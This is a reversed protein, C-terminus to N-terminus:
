VYKLAFYKKNVKVECKRRLIEKSCVCCKVKVAPYKRDSGPYTVYLKEECMYM